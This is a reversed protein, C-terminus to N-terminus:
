SEKKALSAKGRRLAQRVGEDTMEDFEALDRDAKIAARYAASGKLGLSKQKQVAQVLRENRDKTTQRRGKPKYDATLTRLGAQPLQKGLAEILLTKGENLYTEALDIEGAALATLGNKAHNHATRFHAAGSRLDRNVRQEEVTDGVWYGGVGVKNRTKVLLTELADQLWKTEKSPSM